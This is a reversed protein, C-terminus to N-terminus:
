EGKQGPAGGLEALCANSAAQVKRAVTDDNDHQGQGMPTALIKKETCDCLKQLHARFAANPAQPLAKLCDNKVDTAVYRAFQTDNPQQGCALTPLGLLAASVPWLCKHMSGRYAIGDRLLNTVDISV